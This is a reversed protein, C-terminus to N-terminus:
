LQHSPRSSLRVKLRQAMRMCEKEDVQDGPSTKNNEGTARSREGAARKIEPWEYNKDAFGGEMRGAEDKVYDREQWAKMQTPQLREMQDLYPPQTLASRM